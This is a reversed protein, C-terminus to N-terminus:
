GLPGRVKNHGKGALIDTLSGTGSNDIANNGDGGLWVIDNNGTDDIDNNGNGVVEIFDSAGSASIHNNGNGAVLIEATNTNAVDIHNNGNGSVCVFQSAPSSNGTQIHNNGEGVHVVLKGSNGVAIQHNGDLTTVNVTVGPLNGIQVNNNGSGLGVFVRSIPSFTGSGLNSSVTVGGGATPTVVVKDNANSTDFVFLTGNLYGV